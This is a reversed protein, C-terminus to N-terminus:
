KRETLRVTPFWGHGLASHPAWVPLLEKLGNRPDQLPPLDRVDDSGHRWASPTRYGRAEGIEEGPQLAEEASCEYGSDVKSPRAILEIGPRARIPGVAGPERRKRRDIWPRLKLHVVPGQKRGKAANHLSGILRLPPDQVMLLYQCFTLSPVVSCEDPVISPSEFLRRGPDRDLHLLEVGNCPLCVAICRETMPHGSLHHEKGRIMGEIVDLGKWPAWGVGEVPEQARGYEPFPDIANSPLPLLPNVVGRRASRSCAGGPHRGVGSRRLPSISYHSSRGFEHYGPRSNAAASNVAERQSPTARGQEGLTEPELREM